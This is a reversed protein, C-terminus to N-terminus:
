RVYRKLPERRVPSQTTPVLERCFSQLMMRLGLVSLVALYRRSM